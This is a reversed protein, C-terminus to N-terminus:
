AVGAIAEQVGREIAEVARELNDEYARSMFHIGKTGHERIGLWAWAALNVVEEPYAAGGNEMFWHKVWFPPEAEISVGAGGKVAAWLLLPEPPANHPRTDWEVFPAYPAAPAAIAQLVDGEPPLVESYISQALHGTARRETFVLEVASSRVMEAGQRLGKLGGALILRALARLDPSEEVVVTVDPM